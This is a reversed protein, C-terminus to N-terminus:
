GSWHREPFEMNEGPPHQCKRTHLQFCCLVFHQELAAEIGCYSGHVIKSVTEQLHLQYTAVTEYWCRVIFNSFQMKNDLINLLIYNTRDLYASKRIHIQRVIM